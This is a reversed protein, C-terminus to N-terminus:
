DALLLSYWSYKRLPLRPRHTLSVVKGGEHASHGSIQSGWGGPVRLAQGPRYLSQQVQQQWMKSTSYTTEPRRSVGSNGSLRVLVFIWSHCSFDCLVSPMGEMQPIVLDVDSIHWTSTRTLISVPSAFAYILPTCIKWTQSGDWFELRRFPSM